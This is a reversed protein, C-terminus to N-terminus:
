ESFPNHRAEQFLTKVNVSNDRLQTLRQAVDQDIHPTVQTIQSDVSAQTPQQDSLSSIQLALFGYVIALFLVFWIVRYRLLYHKLRLGLVAPSLGTGTPKAAKAPKQSM